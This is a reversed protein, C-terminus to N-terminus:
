NVEVKIRIKDGVKFNNPRKVILPLYSFCWTKDKKSTLFSYTITAITFTALIGIISIQAIQSNGIDNAILYSCLFVAMVLVTIIVIPIRIRQNGVRKTPSTIYLFDINCFEYGKVKECPNIRSIKGSYLM